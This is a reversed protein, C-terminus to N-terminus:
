KKEASIYAVFSACDEGRTAPRFAGNGGGKKDSGEWYITSRKFGAEALLERVEPLTWLRWDYVFAPRIKSGDKFEFHIKCLYEGSIPEYDAQEWVYTFGKCRRREEEATFAEYGGYIDLFFVGDPKLSRYVSKFYAGLAERTKFVFYSFNFAIVIDFGRDAGPGPDAVNRRLLTVRDRTGPPLKGVHGDRAWALAAPDLDLGVATNGARRSAFECAIAAGFCFDERARLARRGTIRKFHKEIFDIEIDPSQVAIEYLRRKDATKATLALTRRKKKM